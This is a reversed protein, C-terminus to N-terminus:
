GDMDGLLAFKNGGGPLPVGAAVGGGGGGGGGGQQKKAPKAVVPERWVYPPLEATAAAVVTNFAALLDANGLCLAAPDRAHGWCHIWLRGDFANYTPGLALPQGCVDNTLYLYWCALQAFNATHVGRREPPAEFEAAAPPMPTKLRLALLTAVIVRWETQMLQLQPHVTNVLLYRALLGVPLLLPPLALLPTHNPLFLALLTQIRLDAGTAPALLEVALPTTPEPVTVKRTKYRRESQIYELVVRPSDASTVGGSGAAAAAAKKGKWSRVEAIPAPLLAAYLRLRLDSFANNLSHTSHRPDELLLPCKFEAFEHVGIAAYHLRGRAYAEWLHPHIKAPVSFPRLQYAAEAEYLVAGVTRKDDKPLSGLLSTTLQVMDGNYTQECSCMLVLRMPRPTRIHTRVELYRAVARVTDSIKTAKTSVIGLRGHLYGCYQSTYDNGVLAGFIPLHQCTTLVVFLCVCM